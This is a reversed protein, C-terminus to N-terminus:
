ESLNSRHWVTNTYQFKKYVSRGCQTQRKLARFNYYCYILPTVHQSVCLVAESKLFGESSPGRIIPVLSVTSSRQECGVQKVAEHGCNALVRQSVKEHKHEFVSASGYAAPMWPCAPGSTATLSKNVHSIIVRVSKKEMPTQSLTCKSNQVQNHPQQMDRARQLCPFVAATAANSLPWTQRDM